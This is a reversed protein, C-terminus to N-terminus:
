LILSYAESGHHREVIQELTQPFYDQHMCGVNYAECRIGNQRIKAKMEEELRAEKSAHTHGHLVFAGYRQQPAFPVWYHCLFVLRSEVHFLDKKMLLDDVTEFCNEYEESRKDHNGRILHIHGNLRETYYSVPKKNKYAFDGVVYVHDEPMVVANWNSILTEDHEEITEFPRNDFKLCNSHGFHLDAIYLNRSM